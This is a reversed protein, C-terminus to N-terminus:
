FTEEFDIGPRQTYGKAVLRAKFTAVKRDAGIKHKFIWKCGVPKCGAPSDVLTWIKNSYM